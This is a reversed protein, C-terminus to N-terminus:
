NFLKLYICFKWTDYLGNQYLLWFTRSLSFFHNLNVLKSVQHLLSLMLVPVWSFPHPFYFGLLITQFLFLTNTLNQHVHEYQTQFEFSKLASFTIGKFSCFYGILYFCLPYISNHFFCRTPNYELSQFQPSQSNLEM